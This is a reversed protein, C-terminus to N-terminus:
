LIRNFLYSLARDYKSNTHNNPPSFDWLPRDFLIFGWSGILIYQCLFNIAGEFNLTFDCFNGEKAMQWRSLIYWRYIHKHFHFKFHVSLDRFLSYKKFWSCFNPGDFHELKEVELEPMKVMAPTIM